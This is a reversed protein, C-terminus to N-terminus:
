PTARPRCRCRSRPSARPARRSPAAGCRRRGIRSRRLSVAARGCPDVRGLLGGHGVGRGASGAQRPGRGGDVRGARRRTRRGPRSASGVASARCGSREGRVEADVVVVVLEAVAARSAIRASSAASRAWRVAISASSGAPSDGATRKSRSRSSCLRRRAIKSASTSRIQSRRESASSVTPSPSNRSNARSWAGSASRSSAIAPRARPRAGADELFRALARSRAAPGATAACRSRTPRGAGAARRRTRPPRGLAHEARGLLPPELPGDRGGFTATSSTRGHSSRCARRAAGVVPREPALAVVRQDRQAGEVAEVGVGDQREALLLQGLLLAARTAAARSISGSASSASTRRRPDLGVVRRSRPPARPAVAVRHAPRAGCRM